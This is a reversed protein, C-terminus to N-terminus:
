TVYLIEYIHRITYVLPLWSWSTARDGRYRTVHVVSSRLSSSTNMRFPLVGALFNMWARANSGQSAEGSPGAHFIASTALASPMLLRVMSCQSFRTTWCPTSAACKNALWPYSWWTFNHKVPLKLCLNDSQGTWIGWFTITTPSDSQQCFFGNFTIQCWWNRVHRSLSYYFFFTRRIQFVIPFNRWLFMCCTDRRHFIDKLYVVKWIVLIKWSHAHLFRAFLQDTHLAFGVGKCAQYALVCHCHIQFFHTTYTKISTSGKAPFLCTAIVSLLVLFSQACWICSM